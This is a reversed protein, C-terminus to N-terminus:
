SSPHQMPMLSKKWKLAKEERHPTNAPGAWMLPTTDDSSQDLCRHSSPWWAGLGVVFYSVVCGTFVFMLSVCEYQCMCAWRPSCHYPAYLGGSHSPSMKLAKIVHKALLYSQHRLSCSIVSDSQRCSHVPLPKEELLMEVEEGEVGRCQLCM